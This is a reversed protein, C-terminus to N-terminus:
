FYSGRNPPRRRSGSRTYLKKGVIIQVTGYWDRSSPNGRIGGGETAPKARRDALIVGIEGSTQRLAEQNAYSTSVDDFYDTMLWTGSGELAITWAGSKGGKSTPLSYKVGVLFPLGVTFASYTEGGGILQGETGLPRLSYWQGDYEAKPEFYVLRLGTAVYASIPSARRGFQEPIIFVELMPSVSIFTTKFSLNRDARGVNETLSDAGSASGYTFDGRFSIVDTIKSKIGAAFTYSTAEINLDSLGNKGSEAGGGLDTLASSTGGGFYVENKFKKWYQARMQSFSVTPILVILALVLLKKLVKAPLIAPFKNTMSILIICYIGIIKNTQKPEKWEFILLRFHL